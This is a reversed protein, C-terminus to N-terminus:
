EDTRVPFVIMCPKKEGTTPDDREHIYARVKQGKERPFDTSDLMKPVTLGLSNGSEKIKLPYSCVPRAKTRRMLM